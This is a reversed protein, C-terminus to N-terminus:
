KGVGSLDIVEISKKKKRKKKKKKKDKLISDRRHTSIFWDIRASEYDNIQNIRPDAFHPGRAVHIYEIQALIPARPGCKASGQMLWIFFTYFKM